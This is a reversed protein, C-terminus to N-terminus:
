DGGSFRVPVWRLLCGHGSTRAAARLRLRPLLVRRKGEAGSAATREIERAPEGARVPHGARLRVRRRLLGVLVVFLLGAVAARTVRRAGICANFGKSRVTRDSALLATKTQSDRRWVAMRAS